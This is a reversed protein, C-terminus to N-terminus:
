VHMRGWTVRAWIREYIVYNVLSIVTTLIAMVGGLAFSGTLAFGLVSMVFLGWINWIIAKASTRRRTEM